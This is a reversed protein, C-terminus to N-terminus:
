DTQDSQANTPSTDVPINTDTPLTTDVQLELTAQRNDDPPLTGSQSSSSVRRAVMTVTVVRVDSSSDSSEPEPNPNNDTGHGRPRARRRAAFSTVASAANMFNVAFVAGCFFVSLAVLAFTSVSNFYQRYAIRFFWTFALLFAFLPEMLRTGLDFESLVSDSANSGRGRRSSSPQNAEPQQSRATPTIVLCHITAGDPIDYDCLRNRKTAEGEAPSSGSGSRNSRISGREALERGQFILRVNKNQRLLEDAFYKRKFRAVSMEPSAHVFRAEDNLYQLRLVLHGKSRYRAAYEEQEELTLPKKIASLQQETAATLDSKASDGPIVDVGLQKDPMSDDSLEDSTDDSVEANGINSQVVQGSAGESSSSLSPIDGDTTTGNESRDGNNPQQVVTIRVPLLEWNVNTSMWALVVFLCLGLFSILLLLENGIGEIISGESFFGFATLM